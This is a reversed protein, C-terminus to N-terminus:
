MYKVSQSLMKLTVGSVDQLGIGRIYRYTIEATNICVNANYNMYPTSQKVGRFWPKRRLRCTAYTNHINGIPRQKLSHLLHLSFSNSVVGITHQQALMSTIVSVQSAVLSM